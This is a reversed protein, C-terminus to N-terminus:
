RFRSSGRSAETWRLGANFAFPIPALYGKRMLARVDLSLLNATSNGTERTSWRNLGYVGM